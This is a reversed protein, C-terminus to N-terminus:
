PFAIRKKFIVKRGLLNAFILNLVVLTSTYTLSVSVKMSKSTLTCLQHSRLLAIQRYIKFINMRKSGAIEEFFINKSISYKHGSIYAFVPELQKNYYFAFSFINVYELSHECFHVCIYTHM